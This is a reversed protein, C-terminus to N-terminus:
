VLSRIDAPPTAFNDNWGDVYTIPLDALGGLDLGEILAVNVAYFRGMDPHDAWGYTGSGCTACFMHHIFPARRAPPTWRYDTMANAGRLLTFRCAPVIAFWARVKKCYSCNCRRTGEHEFDHEVRFHVDGCHCMAEFVTM